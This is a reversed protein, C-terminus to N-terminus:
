ILQNGGIIDCTLVLTSGEHYGGVSEGAVVGKEDLIVAEVLPVADFYVFDTTPM